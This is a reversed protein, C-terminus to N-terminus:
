CAAWGVFGVRVLTLDGSKQCGEASMRAKEEGGVGAGVAVGDAGDEGEGFDEVLEAALDVDDEGVGDGGGVAGKGVEVADVVGGGGVVDVGVPVM